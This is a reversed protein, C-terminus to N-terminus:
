RDLTAAFVEVVPVDTRGVLELAARLVALQTARDGAPGLPFGLRFPVELSRPVGVKRTIEPMMTISTTVVGNRELEAQVLGVTQHCM